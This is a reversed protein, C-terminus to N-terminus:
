TQNVSLARTIILTNHNSKDNNNDTTLTKMNEFPFNYSLPNLILFLERTNKNIETM